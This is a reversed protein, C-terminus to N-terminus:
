LTMRVPHKNLFVLVSKFVKFTKFVSLVTKLQGCFAIVLVFVDNRCITVYEIMLM